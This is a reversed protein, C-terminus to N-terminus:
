KNPPCEVLKYDPARHHLENKEFREIYEKIAIKIAHHRSSINRVKCIKKLANVENSKLSITVLQM